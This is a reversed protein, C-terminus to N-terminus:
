EAPTTTDLSALDQVRLKCALARDTLAGMGLQRAIALAEDLLSMAKNRDGPQGRTLLMDAYQQQTHALYPRARMRTNMALAAQFHQEAEDWRAMTTALMGLYRAASGTCAVKGGLMINHKAYPLLRQYLIDARRTDGLFACVEALYTMSTVWMADRPIAAFGNAALREFMERAEHELGLESYLVALGPQWTFSAPNRQVFIRVAPEVERLRGQGRRITFMQLGFVGSTDEGQLKQGVAFGQQALREADAFRGELLARATQFGMALYVYFPQRMEEVLLILAALEADAAQIDGLELLCSLRWIRADSARERDGIEEALRLMEGASAFLDNIREPRGDLSHQYAKLTFALVAPDGSRRAMEVAQQGVVEARELASTFSLARALGGLVQVRLISDERGLAELAEELLHVTPGGFLGPRRSAEEFGLAACALGEPSRLQRALAAAQHFTDLAHPFDGAKMRAEGLALLLAYRQAEDGPEQPALAGLAMEYYKVAEEYALVAMARQGARQWYAVAQAPLSAETYHHALLEPQTEVTEPFRAELAQAIRQHYHQRTSRLLSQYAAEQVLVHKFLYTAQPPVGRQYLLEAEVLSRLARQVTADDLHAIASLLEYSFQRGIIAGVQAIGKATLLRDLRAMLSDQLTAPIALDAVPRTLVYHGARETLLGSELVTKTLEEVFLPVGDTKDLVHQLVDPPLMKGEIVHTVMEAVQPRALRTLTMQTLYSRSGWPVQFEPRCTVLLYLATTPAQDVVLSLWEVTTPDVWHLDEIIFLVPQDAAQTLFVALLAEFTKQRQLQPPLVLPPYREAPLPLSLLTAFLPVTADLPLASQRVFHELKALKAETTEDLHWYLARQLVDILPYLATNHYYPLCRCEWRTHPTDAVHETIVHVLRSKGIGAEGSLIIVQGRSDQVQAWRERLLSVEQERGVLPILGRPIAVDLRTQAGSERLVRSVVLPQALGKLEHAGLPQCVFYGHILHATAASIVITNPTALGQLRAAVNPTEGLALQEQREGGGIEGVVVMGTHIGVRVALRLGQAQELHANLTDMMAVIGLGTRVARQADDEHAHPYGFYVLLGDGLHQAIHGEFRQIAEACTAHYARVVERWDEPDLQSSLATSDVLDCFLVTLQRREAEPPSSSVPPPAPRSAPAAPSVPTAPAGTWVLVNGREDVALRQGEILENKLDDLAADDLQFQRKLTGYTLRGRRQLMAIAQDLIEEFTM